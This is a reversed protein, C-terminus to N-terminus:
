KGQKRAIDDVLSNVEHFQKRIAQVRREERARKIRAYAYTGMLGLILFLYAYLGLQLLTETM